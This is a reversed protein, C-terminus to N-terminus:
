SDANGGAGPSSFDECWLVRLWAHREAGGLMRRRRKRGWHFGGHYRLTAGAEVLLRLLHM